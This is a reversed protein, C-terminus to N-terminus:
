LEPVTPAVVEVFTANINNSDKYVFDHTWKPCYFVRNKNIVDNDHYYVFHKNGLHTELFHLISYTERESRNTFTLNIQNINNQNQSINLTKVFSNKFFETRNAHNITLPVSADPEWFFTRTAGIGGTFGAEGQLEPGISKTDGSVYYYNHLGHTKNQSNTNGIIGNYGVLVEEDASTDNIFVAVPCTSEFKWLQSDNFPLFPENGAISPRGAESSSDFFVAGGAEMRSYVQHAKVGQPFNTRTLEAATLGVGGTLSHTHMSRWSDGTYYSVTISGSYPTVIAYDQLKNGYSAYNYLNRIGLSQTGDGGAGDGIETSSVGSVHYFSFDSEFTAPSNIIAADQGNNRRRYAYTNMLYPFATPTQLNNAEKNYITVPTLLMKDTDDTTSSTGESTISMLFNKPFGDTATTGTFFHSDNETFALQGTQGAGLTISQVATSNVGDAGIMRSITQTESDLNLIYARHPTTRSTTAKFSAGAFSFPAMIHNRDSRTLNAYKTARYFKGATVNITTNQPKSNASVIKTGEESGTVQAWTEEYIETNPFPLAVEVSAGSFCVWKFDNNGTKQIVDFKKFNRNGGPLDIGHSNLDNQLFSYGYTRLLEIPTNIDYLSLVPKIFGEGNNLVSSVTNNFLSIDVKYVDSSLDVVTYDVIQSGSFNQYIEGGLNIEIGNKPSGFNLYSTDGTFAQEGTLAGTTISEIYNLLKKTRSLNNIFSLKSKLRLNNLGMPSIFQYFNSGKWSSNEAEFSMQAGYTPTFINFGLQTKETSSLTSSDLSFFNFYSSMYNEVGLRQSSTLTQTSFILEQFEGKGMDAGGATAFSGGGIMHYKPTASSTFPAPTSLVVGNDLQTTSRINNVKFGVTNLNTFSSFLKSKNYEVAVGTLVNQSSSSGKREYYFAYRNNPTDALEVIAMDEVFNFIHGGLITNHGYYNAGADVQDTRGNINQANHAGNGSVMGVLFTESVGPNDSHLGSPEGNAEEGGDFQMVGSGTLKATPAGNTTVLAGGSVVLPNTHNANRSTRLDQSSRYLFGTYHVLNIADSPTAQGIGGQDYLIELEGDDSGIWSSLTGVLAQTNITYGTSNLSLKGDKDFKFDVLNDNSKKRLRCCYGAYDPHIKRFGYAHDVFGKLNSPISIDLVTDTIKDRNYNFKEIFSM